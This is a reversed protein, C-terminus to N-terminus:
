KSVVNHAYTALQDGNSKYIVNMPFVGTNYNSKNENYWKENLEDLHKKDIGLKGYQTCHPLKINPSLGIHFNRQDLTM